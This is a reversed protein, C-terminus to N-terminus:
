RARERLGGYLLHIYHVYSYHTQWWRVRIHQDCNGPSLFPFNVLGAYIEPKMCKVEHCHECHCQFM